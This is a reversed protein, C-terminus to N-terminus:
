YGDVPQKAGYIEKWRNNLLQLYKAKMDDSLFSINILSLWAARQNQITKLTKSITIDTLGLRESGFYDTIMEKTLKSKKGAMPLAIEEIPNPLAITTNLLDYAPSLEIKGNRRILSFNKLHMDENGCLFNFLTLRFLKQKEIIPFTCYKELVGAVKEMSSRYKTDRTQETLQAFDEVAAKKHKPLRDFRKIIYSRTGDKSYIMGHFPVGIGALSALRMTLDENEPLEPYSDNQPKLIYDGGRDTVEFIKASKNLRVSLKPQVGQISMKAARAIAERLQEGKDYPFDNLKNLAPSLQRLGVPSYQDEGCQEYSIPCRNM